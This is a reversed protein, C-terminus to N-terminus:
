IHVKQTHYFNSISIVVIHFDVCSIRHMYFVELSYLIPIFLFLIASSEKGESSVLGYRCCHFSSLIFAFLHRCFGVQGTHTMRDDKLLVNSSSMCRQSHPSILRLVKRSMLSIRFHSSAMGYIAAVHMGHLLSCELLELLRKLYLTTMYPKLYLTTMYPKSRYFILVTYFNVM